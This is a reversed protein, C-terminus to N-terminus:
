LYVFWHVMSFFISCVLILPLIHKIRQQYTLVSFFFIMKSHFAQQLANQYPRIRLAHMHHQGFHPRSCVYSSSKGFHATKTSKLQVKEWKLKLKLKFQCYSDQQLHTTHHVKSETRCAGTNRSNRSQTHCSHVCYGARKWSVSSKRSARCSLTCRGSKLLKRALLWLSRHRRECTYAFCLCFAAFKM